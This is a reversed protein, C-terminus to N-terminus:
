KEAKQKSPKSEKKVETNEKKTEQKDGNNKANQKANKMVDVNGVPKIELQKLEAVKYRRLLM